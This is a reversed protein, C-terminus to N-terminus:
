LIYMNGRVKEMAKIFSLTQLYISLLKCIYKRTNTSIKLINYLKEINLFNYLCLRLSVKNIKVAVLAYLFSLLLM